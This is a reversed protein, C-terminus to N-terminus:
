RPRISGHAAADPLALGFGLVDEVANLNATVSLSEPRRADLELTGVRPLSGDPLPLEHFDILRRKGLQLARRLCPRLRRSYVGLLPQAAPETEGPQVVAALCIDLQQTRAREVLAQLLSTQLGPMDCAVALVWESRSAELGALLGALPGPYSDGPTAGEDLVWRRRPAPALLDTYRQQAGSAILLEDSVAELREACRELLTEGEIELRAKDFGMRRSRGGCLLLGSVGSAVRVRQAAGVSAVSGPWDPGAAPAHAEPRVSEVSSSGSGLTSGASTLTM